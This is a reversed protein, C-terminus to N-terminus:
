FICDYKENAPLLWITDKEGKRKEILKLTFEGDLFAVVM